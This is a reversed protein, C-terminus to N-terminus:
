AAPSLQHGRGHVSSRNEQPSEEALDPLAPEASSVSTGAHDGSKKKRLRDTHEAVFGMVILCLIMHRMLAVYSRGEFHGFGIESKVVRFAHEVNWRTFAVRLLKEAPTDTAANSLFYKVEGTAVNRAVMLWYSFM